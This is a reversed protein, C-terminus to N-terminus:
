GLHISWSIIGSNQAEAVVLFEGFNPIEGQSKVVMQPGLVRTKPRSSIPVLLSRFFVEVNMHTVIRQCTTAPFHPLDRKGRKTLPCPYPWFCRKCGQFNVNSGLSMSTQNLHHEKEIPSHKLEM